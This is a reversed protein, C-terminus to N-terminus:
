SDDVKMGACAECFSEDFRNRQLAGCECRHWQAEHLYRGVPALEVQEGDPAIVQGVVFAASQPCAVMAWAVLPLRRWPGEDGERTIIWWGPAASITILETM